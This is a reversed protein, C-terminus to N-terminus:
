TAEELEPGTAIVIMGLADLLEVAACDAELDAEDAELADAGAEDANLGAGDAVPVDDGEEEELGRVMEVSPWHLPPLVQLPEVQPGHQEEKPNQPLPSAHHPAVQWGSNPVQPVKRLVVEARFPAELGTVVSAVETTALLSGV